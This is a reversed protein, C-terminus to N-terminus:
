KMMKKLLELLEDVAEDSGARIDDTVCSKVHSALLEKSFSNLCSQVSQVQTLIDACYRGDEIMKRIGGIQGEIRNLRNVLSKIEEESRPKAKMRGEGSESCCCPM